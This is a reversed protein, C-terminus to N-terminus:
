TNRKLQIIDIITEKQFGRMLYLFGVYSIAGIIVSILVSPMYAMVFYVVVGMLLASLLARNSIKLGPRWKITFYVVLYTLIAIMTESIVTIWAAAYMGYKPIFVIYLVLAVIATAIYGIIMKKQKNLAVIIHSFLTGLFIVATALILIQLIRGSEQFESGAVLTMIPTALLLTGVVLPWAVIALFDFTTQMLDKFEKENKQAWYRVFFPMLVGIFMFPFSILIELVRYPAGYVGVEAQSRFVSLIVADAKFYILNFAISIGIPWSRSLTTKWLAFDFAFKITTYRRAFFLSVAFNIISGAVVALMIAILGKDLFIFLIVGALLVLRGIIESLAIRDMRLNKQFLGTLLQNLSIFLFSISTLAIGWKVILPYPFFFAVFPAIGLFIVASILRLTFINSLIKDNFKKDDPRESILQVTMLTLGFDVLIGFIQLYAIITTYGGFGEKGLYRAMAAVVVIGIVTSVAKGAVQVFTNWAIKKSMSM